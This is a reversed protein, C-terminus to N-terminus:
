LSKNSSESRCSILLCFAHLCCRQQPRQGALGKGTGEVCRRGERLLSGRNLVTEEAEFLPLHLLSSLPDNVLVDVRKDCLPLFLPGVRCVLHEFFKAVSTKQAHVLRNLISAHSEVKLVVNSQVLGKSADVTTTDRHGNSDLSVHCGRSQRPEPGMLQLLVKQLGRDQPILHSTKTHTFWATSTVHSSCGGCSPPNSVIKDDIALLHPDGISELSVPHAKKCICSLSVGVPVLREDAQGHVGRADVEGLPNVLHAHLTGVSSDDVEVIDSHGGFIDDPFFPHTEGVLHHLELLLPQCCRSDAERGTDVDDVICNRVGPLSLRESSRQQVVLVDVETQCLQEGLHLHEPRPQVSCGVVVHSSLVDCHQSAHALKFHPLSSLSTASEQRCNQPPM